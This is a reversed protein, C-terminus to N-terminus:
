AVIEGKLAYASFENQFILDVTGTGTFSLSQILDDGGSLFDDDDFISIDVQSPNGLDITRDIQFFNGAIVTEAGFLTIGNVHVSPDDGGATDSGSRIVELSDLRFAVGGQIAAAQQATLETFLAQHQKNM